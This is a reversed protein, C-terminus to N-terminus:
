KGDHKRYTAPEATVWDGRHLDYLDVQQLKDWRIRIIGHGYAVLDSANAPKNDWKSAVDQIVFDLDHLLAKRVDARKRYDRGYAPVLTLMCGKPTPHM